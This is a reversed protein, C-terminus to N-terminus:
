KIRIIFEKVITKKEYTKNGNATVSIKLTYKGKKAKKWKKFKIAGKKTVSVYKKIKKPVDKLKFSVKGKANKVTIPKVTQAKKRLKKLKISKTKVTVKLTNEKKEASVNGDTKSTPKQTPAQTAVPETTPAETPAQTAVPETTPAETPAQTEVPETTPEQTPAQTTIPETTPEQTPEQTEVAETTPEQTPAQTEVAETTPEQTPAQTEVAETTPAQTPAQTEVAETAPEQTPAQTEVAETTPEQTPAQTEVAETAPEQTPEQTEVAETAPEQTPAQTEVSETAPAQTPEQTEVSETAPVQTPETKEVVNIGGVPCGFSVCELDKNYIDYNDYDYEPTVDLNDGIQAKDTVLFTLKAITGNVTFNKTSTDNAWALTYPSTYEPKHTSTGLVGADEVKTLSLKESDFKIRITASVIGPNNSLAVDLEVEEGISADATSVTIEPTEAAFATISVVSCLMLVSLLLSIGKLLGKTKM